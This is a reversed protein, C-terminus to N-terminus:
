ISPAETEVAELCCTFDGKGFNISLDDPNCARDDIYVNAFIKRCDGGFEAIIEPLNENVADFKLGLVARSWDIAETLRDGTRNTWLILKHGMAQASALASALAYNPEGIEPWANECLTGDFDVAIIM